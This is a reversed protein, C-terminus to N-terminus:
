GVGSAPPRTVMMAGPAIAMLLPLGSGVDAITMGFAVLRRM